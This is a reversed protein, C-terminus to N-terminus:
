HQMEAIYPSPSFITIPFKLFIDEDYETPINTGFYRMDFTFLAGNTERAIDVMLGEEIWQTSTDGGDKLYIYIPGLYKYYDM